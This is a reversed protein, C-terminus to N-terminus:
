WDGMREDRSHGGARERAFAHLCYVGGWGLVVQWLWEMDSQGMVGHMRLVIALIYDMDMM